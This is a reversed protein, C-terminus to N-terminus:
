RWTCAFYSQEATSRASRTCRLGRGTDMQVSVDEVQHHAKDLSACSLEYFEEDAYMAYYGCYEETDVFVTMVYRPVDFSVDAFAAIGDGDNELRVWMDASELAGPTPTPLVVLRSKWETVQDALTSYPIAFFRGADQTSRAVNVGLVKGDMTLLPGGSSGEQLPADHIVLTLPEYSNHPLVKGTTSVAVERPQGLAVILDGPNARGGEEWPLTHFEDNCCISIVAVDVYPADDYGLLTGKYYAERVYVDIHGPQEDVVHNNTVVFATDGSVAFVFGSGQSRGAEVRVISDEAWAVLEAASAPVKLTPRVTPTPPTEVTPIDTPVETSGAPQQGTAQEGAPGQPGMPGRPGVRGQAEEAAIQRIEDDRLTTTAAILAAVALLLSIIILVKWLSSLDRPPRPPQSAPWYSESVVQPRPPQPQM